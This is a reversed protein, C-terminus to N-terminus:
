ASKKVVPKVNYLVCGPAFKFAREHLYLNARHVPTKANLESDISRTDVLDMASNLNKGISRRVSVVSLLWLM